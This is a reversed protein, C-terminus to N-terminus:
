NGDPVAHGYAPRSSGWMRWPGFVESPLAHDYFPGTEENIQLTRRDLGGVTRGYFPYVDADSDAGNGGSLGYWSGAAFESPSYLPAVYTKPDFKNWRGARWYVWRGEPLWYWWESNHFTYRWQDARVANDKSDKNAASQTQTKAASQAQKKAASQKSGVAWAASSCIGVVAVIIAVISLVRVLKM